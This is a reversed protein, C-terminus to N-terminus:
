EAGVLETSPTGHDVLLLLVQAVDVGEFEVVGVVLFGATLEVLYQGFVPTPVVADRFGLLIMGVVVTM